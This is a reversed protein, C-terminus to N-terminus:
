PSLSVRRPCRLRERITPRISGRVASMSDSRPSAIARRVESHPPRERRSTPARHTHPLPILTPSAGGVLGHRMRPTSMRTHLPQGHTPTHPQASWRILGGNGNAGAAAPAFRCPRRAGAQLSRSSLSRSCGVPPAYGLRRQRAPLSRFTPPVILSLILSVLGQGGCPM